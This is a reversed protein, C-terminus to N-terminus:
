NGPRRTLSGSASALLARCRAPDIGIGDWLGRLLFKRFLPRVAGQNRAPDTAGNAAPLNMTPFRPFTMHPRRVCARTPAGTNNDTTPRASTPGTGAACAKLPDGTGPKWVLPRTVLM